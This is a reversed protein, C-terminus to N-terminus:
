KKKKGYNKSRLMPRKYKKDEKWKKYRYSMSSRHAERLCALSDNVNYLKVEKDGVTVTMTRIKGQKVSAKVYAESIVRVINMLRKMPVYGEPLVMAKM